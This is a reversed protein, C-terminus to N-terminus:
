GLFKLRPVISDLLNKEVEKMLRGGVLCDTSLFYVSTLCDKM